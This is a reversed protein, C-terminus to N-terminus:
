LFEFEQFTQSELRQTPSPTTPRHPLFAPHLRPRRVPRALNDTPNSSDSDAAVSLLRSVASASTPLRTRPEDASDPFGPFSLELYKSVGVMGIQSPQIM